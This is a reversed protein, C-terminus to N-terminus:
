QLLTNDHFSTRPKFMFHSRNFSCASFATETPLGSEGSLSMRVSAYFSPGTGFEAAGAYFTNFGCEANRFSTCATHQSLMSRRLTLPRFRKIAGVMVLSM